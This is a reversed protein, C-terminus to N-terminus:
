EMGYMDRQRQPGRYLGSIEMGQALPIHSGGHAVPCRHCNDHAILVKTNVEVYVPKMGIERDKEKVYWLEKPNEGM